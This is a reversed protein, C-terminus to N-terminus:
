DFFFHIESLIASTVHGPPTRDNASLVSDAMKGSQPNSKHMSPSTLMEATLRQDNWTKVARRRAASVPFRARGQCKIEYCIRM